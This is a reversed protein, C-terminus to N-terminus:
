QASVCQDEVSVRTDRPSLEVLRQLEDAVPVGHDDLFVPEPDREPCGMPEIAVLSLESWTTKRHRVFPDIADKPAVLRYTKDAGRWVSAEKLLKRARDDSDNRVFIRKGYTFPIGPLIFFENTKM